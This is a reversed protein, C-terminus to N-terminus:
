GGATDAADPEATTETERPVDEATVAPDAATEETAAATTEEIDPETAPDDDAPSVEQGDETTDPADADDPSPAPTAVTTDTTADLTADLNEAVPDVGPEPEPEPAPDPATEAPPDVPEAEALYPRDYAREVIEKLPENLEDALWGLGILRLPTLLPLNQTPVFVYTINGETWVTNRPDDLAVDTYDLHVSSLIGAGINLMALLNFPDAPFDAVPDYQRVVDVVQYQTQPMAPYIGGHARTPNGILVFSLQEAAPAWPDDAHEALWEAAVVAGHSYGFVITGTDSSVRSVDATSSLRDTLLGVGAATSFPLYPILDCGGSECLSGQLAYELPWVPWLPTLTLVTAAPEVATTATAPEAGTAAAAQAPMMPMVTAIAALPAVAYKPNVRVGSVERAAVIPPDENERLSTVLDDLVAAVLGDRDGFHRCLVAASVGAHGAIDAIGAAAGLEGFATRAAAILGARDDVQRRGGNRLGARRMM